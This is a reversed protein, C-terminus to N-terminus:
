RGARRRLSSVLVRGAQAVRLSLRSVRGRRRLASSTSWSAARFDPRPVWAFSRIPGSPAFRIHPVGSIADVPAATRGILRRHHDRQQEIGVRAPDGRRPDDLARAHLVNRKAHDSRLLTRIVRRDRPEDLAVLGRQGPQETLDQQQARAGGQRPDPTMAISPV